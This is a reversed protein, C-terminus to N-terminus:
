STSQQARQLISHRLQEAHERTLGDIKMDVHMGGATYFKLSALGFKRQLPGSSIEVHQIRDFALTITKRWILGSRYAIDHERLAMGKAKVAMQAVLTSIIALAALGLPILLLWVRVSAPKAVAFYPTFALVLIIGWSIASQALVERPYREAMPEFELQEARPLQDLDLQLNQFTM